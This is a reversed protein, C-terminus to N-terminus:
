LVNSDEKISLFACCKYSQLLDWTETNRRNIWVPTWCILAVPVQTVALAPTGAEVTEWMHWVVIKAPRGECWDHRSNYNIQRKLTQSKQNWVKRPFRSQSALNSGSSQHSPLAQQCWQGRLPPWAFHTSQKEWVSRSKSQLFIEWWCGAGGGWCMSPTFKWFLFTTELMGRSGAKCIRQFLSIDKFSAVNRFPYM